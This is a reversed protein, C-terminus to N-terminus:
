LQFVTQPHIVINHLQTVLITHITKFLALQFPLFFPTYLVTGFFIHLSRSLDTHPKLLQSCVGVLGGEMSNLLDQVFFRLLFLSNKFKSYKIFKNVQEFKEESIKSLGRIKWHFINIQTQSKIKQIIQITEPM